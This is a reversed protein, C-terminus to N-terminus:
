TGKGSLSSPYWSWPSPWWSYGSEWTVDTDADSCVPQGRPPSVLGGMTAGPVAWSGLWTSGRGAQACMPSNTNREGAWWFNHILYICVYQWMESVNWSWASKFYFAFSIPFLPLSHGSSARCVTPWNGLLMGARKLKPKNKKINLTKKSVFYDRKNTM